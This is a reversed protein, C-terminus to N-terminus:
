KIESKTDELKKMTEVAQQKYQERLKHYTDDSIQKDRHKKEIEKLTEMLLSKKTTLFEESAGIVEKTKTTKQKKSKSIFSILLLLLLIVIIAYIWIPISEINEGKISKQLTVNLFSDSKLNAGTYIETGDFKISMSNTDYQLTKEFKTTDIDLLYSVQINTYTTINLGSINCFYRNDGIPLTTYYEIEIGDILINLDTPSEQIWFSITQSSKADINYNEVVSIYNEGTTIEIKSSDTTIEQGHIIMASGTIIMILAIITLILKKM